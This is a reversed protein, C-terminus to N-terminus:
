RPSLIARLADLVRANDAASGITIRLRTPLGYGALGRVLIGQAKLAANVEDARAATGFDPIVFNAYSQPTELGLARLAETVKPLWERNHARSQELYATDELSAIGAAVALGNVNFPGRVRQITDAVHQPFYGWGLRLSALGHIKSFTRIMVTNGKRDVLDRIEREYDESVYEAYAGDIVLLVHSPLKDQLERLSEPSIMTGTPNNPNAIFLLKTAPSVAGLIANVGANLDTEPACISTAGHARASVAYMSFAHETQLVEDGPGAYCQVLLHILEDSGSSVILRDIDTVGSAKGLAERLAIYGPDPYINIAAAADRIAAIAKPSPGHPNENSALMAVEGQFALKGGPVYPKTQSIHPLPRIEHTM